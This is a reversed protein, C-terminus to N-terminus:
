KWADAKELLKQYKNRGTGSKCTCTTGACINRFTMLIVLDWQLSPSVPRYLIRIRPSRHLKLIKETNRILNTQMNWCCKYSLILADSIQVEENTGFQIFCIPQIQNFSSKNCIHLTCFYPTWHRFLEKSFVQLFFIALFLLDIDADEGWLKMFVLHVQYEEEINDSCWTMLVHVM